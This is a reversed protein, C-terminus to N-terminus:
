QINKINVEESEKGTFVNDRALPDHKVFFALYISRSLRMMSPQILILTGITIGMYEWISNDMWSFGFFMYYWVFNFVALAISLGYSVYGTGYYFGIEIETKQGCVPCRENMKLLTRLPFIGKNVYLNGERCRPCKNKLVAALMSKSKAM